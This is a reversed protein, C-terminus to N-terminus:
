NEPTLSQQRQRNKNWKYLYLGGFLLFAGGILSGIVVSIVILTNNSPTNSQQPSPLPKTTTTTSPDFINTWIYEDNNSIDLLLIDNDISQDYDRGILNM